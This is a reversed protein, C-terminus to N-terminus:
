YYVRLRGDKIMHNIKKYVLSKIMQRTLPILLSFGFIDTLLGPTLLLAGGALVSAANFLERTPLEGFYIRNRFRRLVKFGQSKALFVGIGGTVAILLITPISGILGGLEILVWIELLPVLTFLLFIKFFM